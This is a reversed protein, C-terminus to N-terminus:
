VEGVHNQLTMSVQELSHAFAARDHPELRRLSSRWASLRGTYIDEILHSAKGKLRVEVVRGDKTSRDQEVLGQKALRKLAESTTSQAKGTAKVVGTVTIGENKAIVRLTEYAVATIPSGPSVARLRDLRWAIDDLRDLMEKLSTNEVTDPSSRDDTPQPERMM